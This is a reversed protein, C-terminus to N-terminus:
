SFIRSSVRPTARSSNYEQERAWPGEQPCMIYLLFVSTLPSKHEYQASLRPSKYLSSTPVRLSCAHPTMTPLCPRPVQIRLPCVDMPLRLTSDYHASTWPSDYHPTTTPLRGHPTTTHLRLPCVDMPLRLTSDYHASTWPSDYHPTTTPLRGHPTTTHLRLPCVDMPLRLTSDYHSSTWPSDYHPTTTPLVQLLCIHPTTTTLVARM